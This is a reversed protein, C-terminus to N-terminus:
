PAVRLPCAAVCQLDHPHILIPGEQEVGQFFSGLGAM